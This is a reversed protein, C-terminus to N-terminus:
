GIQELPASGGRSGSIWGGGLLRTGSYFVCAQGQAIGHESQQLRVHGIGDSASLTASFLRGSSRIKASLDVSDQLSIDPALWNISEIDFSHQALASYPGVVVQHTYADVHVVYLAEKLGGLGLGQRQGITYFGIGKHRGLIRGEQNVIDGPAEQVFTHYTRKSVFCLDKSAAKSAVSLGREASFARTQTKSFHGLPFVLHALQETTLGFLFFSQDRTLDAGQHLQMVSGVKMGRVYHGTAMFNAEMDIMMRYLIATKVDRNCRVCPLPTKGAAYDKQFPTIILERFAQRHDIVHHEIGLQQAVNKAEEIFSMPHCDKKEFAVEELSEEYDYLRLTIGIVEYGQEKLLAASLSSDVGGSMGVLVREKRNNKRAELAM